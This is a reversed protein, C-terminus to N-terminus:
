SVPSVPTIESWCPPVRYPLPQFALHFPQTVKLGEHFTVSILHPPTHYVTQGTFSTALSHGSVVHLASPLTLFPSIQFCGQSVAGVLVPKPNTNNYVKECLSGGQTGKCEYTPAGTHRKPHHSKELPLFHSFQDPFQVCCGPVLDSSEHAPPVESKVCYLTKLLWHKDTLDWTFSTM